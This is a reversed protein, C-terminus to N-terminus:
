ESQGSPPQALLEPAANWLECLCEALEANGAFIYGEGQVVSFRLRGSRGRSFRGANAKHYLALLKSRRM